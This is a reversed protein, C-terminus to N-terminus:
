MKLNFASSLYLDIKLINFQSVNAMTQAISLPEISREGSHPAAAIVVLLLLAPTRTDM